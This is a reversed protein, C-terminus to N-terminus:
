PRDGGPADDDGDAALAERVARALLVIGAHAACMDRESSITYHADLHCGPWDCLAPCKEHEAGGETHFGCKEVPTCRM